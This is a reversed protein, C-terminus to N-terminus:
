FDFNDPDPGIREDLNLARIRDMQADDLSFSFVDGNTTIRSRTVSKPITSIGEQLQWRLVVQAPTVDLEEGIAVLAPEDLVRAQKLPSWAQPVAGIAETASRVAGQQLHPHLEIQNVSPAVHANAMLQDLHAPHFNSVGIARTKGAERLTEMARWSDETLHPKPWHILYLDVYDLGLRDLSKDLAALGSEYGQENNWLKTTVFIESRDLSSRRIAEGVGAENRYIAATDILRYGDELAWTVADIVEDGDKTQFVGLGHMPMEVTGHLSTTMPHNM